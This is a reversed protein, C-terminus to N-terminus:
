SRPNTAPPLPSKTPLPGDITELTARADFWWQGNELLWCQDHTRKGLFPSELTVRFAQRMATTVLPQVVIEVTDGRPRHADVISSFYRVRWRDFEARQVPDDPLFEQANKWKGTLCTAVFQCARTQPSSDFFGALAWVVGLAAMLLLITAYLVSLRRVSGDAHRFRAVWRDKARQQRANEQAVRRLAAAEQVGRLQQDPGAVLPLKCSGCEAKRVGLMSPIAGTQGCRPCNFRVHPLKDQSLVQGQRDILFQCRCKACRMGRKLKKLEVWGSAQCQPCTLALRMDGGSGRASNGNRDVAINETLSM